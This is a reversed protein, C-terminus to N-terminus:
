SSSSLRRPPNIIKLIGSWSKSSGIRLLALLLFSHLSHALKPRLRFRAHQWRPNRYLSEYDHQRQLDPPAREGLTALYRRELDGNEGHKHFLQLELKSLAFAESSDLSTTVEYTTISDYSPSTQITSSQWLVREGFCYQTLTNGLVYM